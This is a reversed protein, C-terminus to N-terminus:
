KGRRRKFSIVETLRGIGMVLASLARGIRGGVAAVYWAFWAVVGIVKVREVASGKESTKPVKGKREEGTRDERLNDKVLYLAEAAEWAVTWLSTDVKECGYMSTWTGPRYQRTCSRWFTDRPRAYGADTHYNHTAQHVEQTQSQSILALESPHYIIYNLSDPSHRVVRSFRLGKQPSPSTTTFTCDSEETEAFTNGPRNAWSISKDRTDDSTLHQSPRDFQSTKRLTSKRPAEPVTPSTPPSVANQVKEIWKGAVAGWRKDRSEGLGPTECCNDKEKEWVRLAAGLVWMEDLCWGHVDADDDKMKALVDEFNSVRNVLRRKVLVSEDMLKKHVVADNNVIAFEEDRSRAKSEFVGDRSSIACHVSEVASIDSRITCLPCYIPPTLRAALSSPIIHTCGPPSRPSPPPSATSTSPSTTM